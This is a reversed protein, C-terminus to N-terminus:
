SGLTRPTRAVERCAATTYTLADGGGSGGWAAKNTLPQTADDGPAAVLQVYPVHAALLRQPGVPAVVKLLSIAQHPNHVGGVAAAQGVAGLHPPEAQPLSVHSAAAARFSGPEDPPGKDAPPRKQM